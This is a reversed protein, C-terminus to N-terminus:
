FISSVLWLFLANDQVTHQNRAAAARCTDSKTFMPQAMAALCQGVLVIAFGQTPVAKNDKEGILGLVRIWAGATQLLAALCLGWRLGHRSMAWFALFYGPMYLVMFSVSMMNIWTASVSFYAPFSFSACVLWACVCHLVHTLLARM